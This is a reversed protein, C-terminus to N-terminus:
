SYQLNDIRLVLINYYEQMHYKQEKMLSWHEDSIVDPKGQEFLGKLKSLNIGVKDAEKRLEAKIDRM